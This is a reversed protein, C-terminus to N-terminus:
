PKAGAIFHADEDQDEQDPQIKKIPKTVKGIYCASAGTFEALYNSLDNLNDQLDDAISVQIKFEEIRRDM